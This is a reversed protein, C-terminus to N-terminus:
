LEKMGRVALGGAVAVAIGSGIPVAPASVVAVLLTGASVAASLLGYGEAGAELVDRAMIPLLVSTPALGILGSVSRSLQCFSSARMLQETRVLNPISSQLAPRHFAMATASLAMFLYVQWVRLAAAFLLAGATGVILRNIRDMAVMVRRRDLRDIFAGAIPGLLLSPLAAAIGVVAIAAASDSKELVWRM